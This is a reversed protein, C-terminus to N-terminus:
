IVKGLIFRRHVVGLERSDQSFLRNDGLVFYAHEPIFFENQSGFPVMTIDESDLYPEQLQKETGDSSRIFVSNRKMVITEGPLGIIRKVFLQETKTDFLQVVDFREPPHFLYVYKNVLFRQEDHFTSEMSQGNVEGPEFLFFRTILILLLINFTVAITKGLYQQIRSLM